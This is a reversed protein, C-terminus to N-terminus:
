RPARRCIGQDPPDIKMGTTAPSAEELPTRLGSGVERQQAQEVGRELGLVIGSGVKGVGSNALSLFGPHGDQHDAENQKESALILHCGETDLQLACM